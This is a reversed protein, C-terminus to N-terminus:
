GGVAVVNKDKSFLWCDCWSGTGGLVDKHLPVFISSQPNAGGQPLAGHSLRKGSKM